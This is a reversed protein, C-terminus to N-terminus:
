VGNPSTSTGCGIIAVSIITMMVAENDSANDCFLNFPGEPAFYTEVPEFPIRKYVYVKCQLVSSVLAFINETQCKDAAAHHWFTSSM